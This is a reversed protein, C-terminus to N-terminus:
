DSQGKGKGKGHGQGKGQKDSQAQKEVCDKYQKSEHKYSECSEGPKKSRESTTPKGQGAALVPSLPSLALGAAFAAAALVRTVKIPM